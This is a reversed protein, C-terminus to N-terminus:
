ASVPIHLYGFYQITCVVHKGYREDQDLPNPSEHLNKGGVAGGVAAGIIVLLMLSAVLLFTKVKMGFIIRPPRGDSIFAHKGTYRTQITSAGDYTSPTERVM